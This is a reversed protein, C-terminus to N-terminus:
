VYKVGTMKELNELAMAYLTESVKLTKANQIEEKTLYSEEKLLQPMIKVLVRDCIAADGHEKAWDCLEKIDKKM